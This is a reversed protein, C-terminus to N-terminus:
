ESIIELEPFDAWFSRHDVGFVYGDKPEQGHDWIIKCLDGTTEPSEVITGTSGVPVNGAIWMSYDFRKSTATAQKYCGNRDLCNEDRTGRIVKVRKGVLSKTHRYQSM